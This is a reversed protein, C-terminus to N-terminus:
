QSPSVKPLAVMSDTLTLWQFSEKFFFPCTCANQANKSMNKTVTSMKSFSGFPVASHTVTCKIHPKPQQQIVIHVPYITNKLGTDFFSLRPNEMVDATGRPWFCSAVTTQGRLTFDVVKEIRLICRFHVNESLTPRATCSVPRRVVTLVYPVSNNFNLYPLYDWAEFVSPNWSKKQVM